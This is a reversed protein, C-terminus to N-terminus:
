NLLLKNELIREMVIKNFMIMVSIDKMKKQIFINILENTDCLLYYRRIINEFYIM